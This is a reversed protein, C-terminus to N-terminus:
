RKIKELIQVTFSTRAKSVSILLFSEVVIVSFFWIFFSVGNKGSNWLIFSSTLLMILTVISFAFPAVKNVNEKVYEEYAKEEDSSGSNITRLFAGARKIRFDETAIQFDFAVAVLPVIFLVEGLQFGTTKGINLVGISLSSTLTGVGLLGTCFSLKRLSFEHRRELFDHIEDRLRDPFRDQIM